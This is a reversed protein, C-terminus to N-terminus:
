AVPSPPTQQRSRYIDIKGRIQTQQERLRAIREEIRADHGELVALREPVTAESDRTLRAFRIMEAIPMGTDRLCRLLRLWGLDNDSYRRRGGATRDISHLLGIREYYRLTDLSFGTQEAAQSPSYFRM